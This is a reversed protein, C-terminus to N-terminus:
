FADGFSLQGPSEQHSRAKRGYRFRIGLLRAPPRLRYNLFRGDTTHHGESANCWICLYGRLMGTAHDHDQVLRFERLRGVASQDERWWCIACRGQQWDFLSATDSAWHAGGTDPLPWFWCAPWIHPLWRNVFPEAWRRLLIVGEREEATMCQHCSPTGAAVHGNCSSAAECRAGVWDRRVIARAALVQEVFDPTM